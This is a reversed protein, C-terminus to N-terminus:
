PCGMGSLNKLLPPLDMRLLNKSTKMVIVTVWKNYIKRFCIVDNQHNIRNKMSLNKIKLSLTIHLFYVFVSPLSWLCVLVMSMLEMQSHRLNNRLSYQLSNQLSYQLSDQLNYQLGNQLGNHLSYQLSDKSCLIEEKRKKILAALKHGQAVCGLHKEWTITETM